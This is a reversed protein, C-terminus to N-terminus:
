IHSHYWKLPLFQLPVLSGRTSPSSFSFTPKFSLILFFVLIMVDPGIVEHCISPSFPATVSKRKKPELIVTSPSQLWSILHHNSRPLFTIVFSSLTNFLFSMVKGVFTQITLAVTKGTTVYPHSLQVLFLASPWLVSARSSHHQLLIKLTGQVALLYFWDSKSSIM